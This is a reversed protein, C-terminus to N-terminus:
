GSLPLLRALCPPPPTRGRWKRGIKHIKELPNGLAVPARVAGGKPGAHAPNEGRACAAGARCAKGMFGAPDNRIAARASAAAQSEGRAWVACDVGGISIACSGNMSIKLGVNKQLSSASKVRIPEIVQGLPRAMAPPKVMACPAADSRM